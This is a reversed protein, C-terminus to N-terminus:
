GAVNANYRLIRLVPRNGEKALPLYVEQTQENIAISHTNVGFTYIGIWKLARGNEQFISIGAACAVYVLHLPHDVTVIDPNLAVPWSSEAITHMTQLDVRILSAPDEDVCAIFAIHQDTDIAMGHPTLCDYPLKM